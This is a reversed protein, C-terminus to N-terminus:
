GHGHAPFGQSVPTQLDVYLLCRTIEKSKYQPHPAVPGIGTGWGTQEGGEAERVGGRCLWHKHGRLVTGEVRLLRGQLCEAQGETPLFNKESCIPIKPSANNQRVVCFSVALHSDTKLSNKYFIWSQLSHKNDISEPFKM